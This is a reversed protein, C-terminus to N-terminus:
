APPVLFSYWCAWCSCGDQRAQYQLQKILRAGQPHTNSCLIVGSDDCWSVMSLPAEGQPSHADVTRLQNAHDVWAVILYCDPVLIM